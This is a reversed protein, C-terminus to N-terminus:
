KIIQVKLSGENDGLGDNADNMRLRLTGNDKASIVAGSGVEFIMNGIQGILAGSPSTPLPEACESPSIIKGCVYNSDGEGSTYQSENPNYSWEGSLVTIEVKDGKNVYVGTAQWGKLSSVTFTVNANSSTGSSFGFFRSVTNFFSQGTIQQYINNGFLLTILAFLFTLIRIMDKKSSQSNTM